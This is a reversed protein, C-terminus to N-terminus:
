RVPPTALPAASVPDADRSARVAQLSGGGSGTRAASGATRAIDGALKEIQQRLLAVDEGGADVRHEAAEKESRVRVIEVELATNEARLRDVTEQLSRVNGDSTNLTQALQNEAAVLKANAAEARETEVRLAENAKELLNQSNALDRNTAELQKELQGVVLKAQAIETATSAAELKRNDALQLLESREKEGEKELRRKESLATEAEALRKKLAATESRAQEITTRAATERAETNAAKAKAEEVSARLSVITADRRGVDAMSQTMRTRMITALRELRRHEIAQEARLLDRSAVIEDRSLPLRRMIRHTTLRVARNWLARGMFLAVLSATLFGLAAYLLPEVM